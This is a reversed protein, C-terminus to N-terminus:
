NVIGTLFSNLILGGEFRGSAEREKARSDGASDQFYAVVPESIMILKNVYTPFPVITAKHKPGSM